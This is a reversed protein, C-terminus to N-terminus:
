SAPLHLGCEIKDTGPLDQPLIQKQFTKAMRLQERYIELDISRAVLEANEISIGSQETLGVLSLVTQEEFSGSLENVLYIVGIPKRTSRPRVAM